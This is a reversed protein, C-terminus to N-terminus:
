VLTKYKGRSELGLWSERRTGGKSTWCEDFEDAGEIVFQGHFSDDEVGDGKTEVGVFPVVGASLAIEKAYM